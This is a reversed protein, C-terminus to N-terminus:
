LLIPVFFVNNKVSHLCKIALYNLFMGERLVAQRHKDYWAREQPNSLVEYARVIVQFETKAEEARDPNKDVYIDM